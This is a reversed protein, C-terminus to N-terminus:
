LKFLISTTALRGIIRAEFSAQCAYSPTSPEILSLLRHTNSNLILSLCLSFELDDGPLEVALLILELQNVVSGRSHFSGSGITDTIRGKTKGGICGRSVVGEM